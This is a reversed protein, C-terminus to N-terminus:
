DKFLWVWLLCRNISVQQKNSVIVPQVQKELKKVVQWISWTSLQYNKERKGRFLKGKGLNSRFLPTHGVQAQM